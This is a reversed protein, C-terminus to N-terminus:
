FSVSSNAETEKKNYLPFFYYNHSELEYPNVGPNIQKFDTLIQSSEFHKLHQKNIEEVISLVTDGPSVKVKMITFDVENFIHVQDTLTQNTGPISLSLDKYISILLLIIFIYMFYRKLVHM